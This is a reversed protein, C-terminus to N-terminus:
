ARSVLLCLSSMGRPISRLRQAPVLCLASMPPVMSPKSTQEMRAALNVASGFVQFRPMVKGLVGCTTPGVHIGVRIELYEM